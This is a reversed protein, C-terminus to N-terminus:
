SRLEERVTGQPHSPEGALRAYLRDTLTRAHDARRADRGLDAARARARDILDMAAFAGLEQSREDGLRAARDLSASAAMLEMHARALGQLVSQREIARVGYEKRVSAAAASLAGDAAEWADAAGGLAAPLESHVRREAEAPRMALLESGMLVLLVDNAGEFIRTIRCDRLMLAIGTEQIFGMAGHLQIATDTIEFAGESAFVKAATSAHLISRKSEALAGVHDVIAEMAFLRSAMRAVHVRSAEFEGIPRRFQRRTLVHELTRELAARATGACGASMVTRGLALIEHALAMGQGPTGLIQGELLSVDDFNVTLTSSGRIGLKHEEPGLEIGATGKPVFVMSHARAGGIGPSRALATFVGAFGGNTVFAKEGELRLSDSGERRELKTRVSKLDSGAEPETACFAAIAEGSAMKPLWEARLPEPGHDVLPRSGLGAHLGVSTALSRDVTALEAVIRCVAGLPLGLGGHSEPISLGFLGLEASAELIEPPIRAQRDIALPDVRERLFRGIPELMGLTEEDDWGSRAREAIELAAM